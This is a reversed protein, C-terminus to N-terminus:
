QPTSSEHKIGPHERWEEVVNLLMASTEYRRGFVDSFSLKAEAGAIFNTDTNFTALLLGEAIDGSAIPRDTKKYIADEGSFVVPPSARGDANPRAVLTIHQPIAIIRGKYIVGNQKIDVEYDRVITQMGGTNIISIFMIIPIGKIQDSNGGWMLSDIRPELAPWLQKASFFYILGFFLAIMGVVFFFADRFQRLRDFCFRVVLWSAATMFAVGVWYRSFEYVAADIFATFWHGASEVM